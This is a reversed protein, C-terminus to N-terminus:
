PSFMGAGPIGQLWLLRTSKDQFDLWKRFNPNRMLWKGTGQYVDDRLVYARPSIDTKIGLYEQKQHSIETSEFHQLARQRAEYEQLIHEFNVEKRILLTHREINTAIVRINDRCKPWLADFVYRWGLRRINLLSKNKLYLCISKRSQHFFKLAVSYFDLIDKFFLLLVEKIASNQSFLSTARQFEPLVSGIDATINIIADFSMKLVSAWQLLLKIPGWILALIDPKAQVFVEIVSAYERLHALYPEIKSLHRLHGKKAQEEQLRDTADYVQEISTTQLIETYLSEDKLGNKFDLLAKDFAAQIPDPPEAM